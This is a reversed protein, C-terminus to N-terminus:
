HSFKQLLQNVFCKDSVGNPIYNNLLTRDNVLEEHISEVKNWGQGPM